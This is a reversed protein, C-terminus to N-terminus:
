LSDHLHSPLNFAHIPPHSRQPKAIQILPGEIGQRIILMPIIYPQLSTAKKEYMVEGFDIGALIVDGEKINSSVGEFSRDRLEGVIHCRVVFRLAVVDYRCGDVAMVFHCLGDRWRVAVSVKLSYGVEEVDWRTYLLGVELLLQNLNVGNHKVNYSAACVRERL